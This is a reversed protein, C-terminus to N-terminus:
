RGIMKLRAARNNRKNNVTDVVKHCTLRSMTDEDDLRITRTKFCDSHNYPVFQMIYAEEDIVLVKIAAEDDIKYYVIDGSVPKVNPDIIAKDGDYLETAMSDGNAVVAYLHENWGTEDISVQLTTDQLANIDCSGCSATGIIPVPRTTDENNKSGLLFGETINKGTKKSFHFALLPAYKEPINNRSFWNSLSQASVNLFRALDAKNTVPEINMLEEVRKIEVALGKRKKM